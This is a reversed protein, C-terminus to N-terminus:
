RPSQFTGSTRATLAPAPLMCTLALTPPQSQSAELVTLADCLWAAAAGEQTCTHSLRRRPAPPSLSCRPQIGGGRCSVAEWAACVWARAWRATVWFGFLSWGGGAGAPGRLLHVNQAHRSAPSLAVRADDGVRKGGGFADGAALASHHAWHAPPPPPRQTAAPWAPPMHMKRAHAARRVLQGGAPMRCAAEGSIATDGEEGERGWLHAGDGLATFPALHLVLQVRLALRPPRPQPPSCPVAPRIAAAAAAAAAGRARTM